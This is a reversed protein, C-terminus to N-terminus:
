NKMKLIKVVTYYLKKLWKLDNVLELTNPHYAYRLKKPKWRVNFEPSNYDVLSEVTGVCEGFEEVHGLSCYFCYKGSRDSPNGFEDNPNGIHDDKKCKGRLINKFEETMRVKDGINIQNM